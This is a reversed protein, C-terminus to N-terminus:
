PIMMNASRRPKAIVGTFADIAASTPGCCAAAPASNPMSMCSGHGPAGAMAVVMPGVARACRSPPKSVDSEHSSIAGPTRIATPIAPSGVHPGTRTKKAHPAPRSAM